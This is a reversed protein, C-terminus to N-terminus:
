IYFNKDNRGFKMVSKQQNRFLSKERIKLEILFYKAEQIGQEILKGHIDSEYIKM